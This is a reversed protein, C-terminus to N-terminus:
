SQKKASTITVVDAQADLRVASQDELAPEHGAIPQRQCTFQEMDEELEPNIEGVTHLPTTDWARPTTDM